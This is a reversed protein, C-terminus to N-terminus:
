DTDKDANRCKTGDVAQYKGTRADGVRQASLVCREPAQASPVPTQARRHPCKNNLPAQTQSNDKHCPRKDLSNKISSRYKPHEKHCGTKRDEHEPM